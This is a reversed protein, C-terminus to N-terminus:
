LIWDRRIIRKLNIDDYHDQFESRSHCRLRHTKVFIDVVQFIYYTSKEM